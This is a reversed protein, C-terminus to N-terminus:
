RACALKVQTINFCRCISGFLTELSMSPPSTTEGIREKAFLDNM